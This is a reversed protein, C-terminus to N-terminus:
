KLEYVSWRKEGKKLLIGTAVLAILERQITKESIDKFSDTIDKISVKGKERVINIIKERRDKRQNKDLGSSPNNENNIDKIYEGNRGDPLRNKYLTKDTIQRKTDKQIDKINNAFKQGQNQNNDKQPMPTDFFDPNLTVQDKSKAVIGFIGFPSLTSNMFDAYMDVINSIEKELISGNMDSIINVTKAIRVFSLMEDTAQKINEFLFQPSNQGNNQGEHHISILEVSLSRLTGKIPERDEIYDTVMYLAMVVKEIKRGIYFLKDSVSDNNQFSKNTNDMQNEM